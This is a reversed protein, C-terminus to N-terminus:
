INRFETASHYLVQRCNRFNRTPGGHIAAVRDIIRAELDICGILSCRSDGLVYNRQYLHSSNHQTDDQSFLELLFRQHNEIHDQLKLFEIFNDTRQSRSVLYCSALYHRDNQIFNTANSYNYIFNFTQSRQPRQNNEM